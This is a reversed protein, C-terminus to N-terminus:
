VLIQLLHHLLPTDAVLKRMPITHWLPFYFFLIATATKSHHLNIQVFNM